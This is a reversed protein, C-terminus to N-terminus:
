EGEEERFRERAREAAAEPTPGVGYESATVQLSGKSFLNASYDSPGKMIVLGFGRQAFWDDVDRLIEFRRTLETM